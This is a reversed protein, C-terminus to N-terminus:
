WGSAAAKMAQKLRGRYGALDMLPYVEIKMFPDLSFETTIADLEDFSSVSAIWGEESIGAVGWLQEFTGNGGYQKAWVITADVLAPGM